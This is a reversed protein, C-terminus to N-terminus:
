CEPDVGRAEDNTTEVLLKYNEVLALRKVNELEKVKPLLEDGRVAHKSSTVPTEITTTPM